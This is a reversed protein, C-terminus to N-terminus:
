LITVTKFKCTKEKFTVTSPKELKVQQEAAWPIIVEKTAVMEEQFSKKQMATRHFFM